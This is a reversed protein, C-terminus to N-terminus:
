MAHVRRSTIRTFLCYYIEFLCYTALIYEEFYKEFGIEKRLDKRIILQCDNRGETFQLNRRHTTIEGPDRALELM